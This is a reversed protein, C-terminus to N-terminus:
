KQLMEDILEILLFPDVPKDQFRVKPFLNEDEVANYLNVGLADAMGTLLIIPM